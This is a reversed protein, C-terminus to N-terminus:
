VRRRSFILKFWVHFLHFLVCVHKAAAYFEKSDLSPSARSGWAADSLRCSSCSAAMSFRFTTPTAGSQPLQCGSSGILCMWLSRCKSQRITRGGRPTADSQAPENKKEGIAIAVEVRVRSVRSVRTCRKLTNGLSNCDFIKIIDGGGRNKASNLRSQPPRTHM